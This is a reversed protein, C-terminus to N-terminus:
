QTSSTEDQEQRIEEVSIKRLKFPLTTFPNPSSPLTDDTSSSNVLNAAAAAERTLDLGDVGLREIGIVRGDETRDVITLPDLELSKADGTSFQVYVARAAADYSIKIRRGEPHNQGPTHETEPGKM